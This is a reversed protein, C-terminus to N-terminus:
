VQLHFDAFLSMLHNYASEGRGEPGGLALLHTADALAHWSARLDPQGAVVPAMEYLQEFFAEQLPNGLWPSLDHAPGLASVYGPADLPAGGGGAALVAEPNAFVREPMRLWDAVWAMLFDRHGRSGLWDLDLWINIVEGGVAALRASYAGAEMGFRLSLDDSHAADRVLLGFGPLHSGHYVWHPSRGRLFAAGGDVLAGRYGRQQLVYAMPNTYLYGPQVCIRPRTGTLGEIRAEHRDLEAAFLGRDAVFSLGHHYPSALFSAQGTAALGQVQELVAPAHAEVQDLWAGTLTLAVQFRDPYRTALEQLCALGPVYCGAARAQTQAATAAADICAQATGIDFISAARLAYPQHGFFHLSIPPM